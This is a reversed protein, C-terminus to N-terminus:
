AGPGAASAEKQYALAAQVAKFLGFLVFAKGAIGRALSQPDLFGFVAAAGIYLVLSTVTVPVPYRTVLVGCVCFVVGLAIAGGYIVRVSRVAGQQLDALKAQDVVVGPGMGKIEKDFAEQVESTANAFLFGNLLLTLVGIVFLISRAGGLTAGRASQALSPLGAPRATPAPAEPAAAAPADV